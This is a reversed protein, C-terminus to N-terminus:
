GAQERTEKLFPQDPHTVGQDPSCCNPSQGQMTVARGLATRLNLQHPLPTKLHVLRIDGDKLLLFSGPSLNFFHNTSAGCHPNAVLLAQHQVVPIKAWMRPLPSKGKASLAAFAWSGKFNFLQLGRWHLYLRPLYSRSNPWTKDENIHFGVSKSRSYFPRSELKCCILLSYVWLRM